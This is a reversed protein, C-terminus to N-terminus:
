SFYKQLAELIQKLRKNGIGEFSSLNRHTRCVLDYITFLQHRCLLNTCSPQLDLKFIQKHIYYDSKPDTVQEKIEDSIAMDKLLPYDKYFTDTM